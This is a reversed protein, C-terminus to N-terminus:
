NATQITTHKAHNRPFRPFRPFPDYEVSWQQTESITHWWNNHTNSKKFVWQSWWLCMIVPGYMPPGAVHPVLGAARYLWTASITQVAFIHLPSNVPCLTECALGECSFLSDSWNGIITSNNQCGGLFSHTQFTLHVSKGTRYFHVLIFEKFVRGSFDSKNNRQM